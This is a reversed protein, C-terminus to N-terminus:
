AARPTEDAERIEFIELAESVGRLTLSKSTARYGASELLRAVEENEVVPRTALVADPDALSQVRSAVNVAMGFYDQREDLTVALCPGSHLGINLALDESGREGNIRRM